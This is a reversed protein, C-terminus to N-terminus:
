TSPSHLYYQTQTILKIFGYFAQCQPTKSLDEVITDIDDRFGM